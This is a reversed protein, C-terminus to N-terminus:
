ARRIAKVFCWKPGTEMTFWKSRYKWCGNHIHHPMVIFPFEDNANCSVINCMKVIKRTKTNMEHLLSPTMPAHLAGEIVEDGILTNPENVKWGIQIWHVSWPQNLASRIAKCQRVFQCMCWVTGHPYQFHHLLMPVVLRNIYDLTLAQSAVCYVYEDYSSVDRRM